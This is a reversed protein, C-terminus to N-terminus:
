GSGPKAPLLNDADLVEMHVVSSLGDDAIQFLRISLPHGFAAGWGSTVLVSITIPHGPRTGQSLDVNLKM